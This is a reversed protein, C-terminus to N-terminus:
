EHGKTTTTIDTEKKDNTYIIRKATLGSPSFNILSALQCESNRLYQYIQDWIRRIPFLQIKLEVIIKNEIFFDPRYLGMFKKTISSFIKIGPEQIYLINRNKFEEELAQQYIYEKHGLSFNKWVAIAAGVVDYSLEKYLISM